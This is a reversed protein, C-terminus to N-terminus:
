FQIFLYETIETTSNKHCDYNNYYKKRLKIHM